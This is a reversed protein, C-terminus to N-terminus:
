RIELIKDAIEEDIILKENDDFKNSYYSEVKMEQYLEIIDAGSPRAEREAFELLSKQKYEELRDFNSNLINCKKEIFEQKKKEM